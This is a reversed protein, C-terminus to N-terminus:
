CKGGVTSSASHHNTIALIHVSMKNSLLVQNKDAEESVEVIAPENETVFHGNERQENQQLQDGEIANQADLNAPNPNQSTSASVNLITSNNDKNKATDSTLPLSSNKRVREVKRRPKARKPGPLDFPSSPHPAIPQLKIKPRPTSITDLWNNNQHELM